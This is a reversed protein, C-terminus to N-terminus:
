YFDFHTYYAYIDHYRYNHTCNLYLKIYNIYMNRQCMHFERSHEDVDDIYKDAWKILDNKFGNKSLNESDSSPIISLNIKFPLGSNIAEVNICDM